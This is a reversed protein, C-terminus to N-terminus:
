PAARQARRSGFLGLLVAPLLLVALHIGLWGWEFRQAIQLRWTIIYWFSFLIVGLGLGLFAYGATTKARQTAM